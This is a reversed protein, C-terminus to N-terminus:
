PLKSTESDTERGCDFQYVVAHVNCVPELVIDRVPEVRPVGSDTAGM